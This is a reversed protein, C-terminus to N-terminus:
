CNCSQLQRSILNIRINKEDKSIQGSLGDGVQIVLNDEELITNVAAQNMAETVDPIFSLRGALEGAGTAFTSRRGDM